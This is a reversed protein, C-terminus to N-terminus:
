GAPTSDIVTGDALVFQKTYIFDETALAPRYTGLTCNLALQEAATKELNNAYGTQVDTNYITIICKRGDKAPRTTLEWALNAIKEKAKFALLTTAVTYTVNFLQQVLDPNQELVGLTLVDGDSPAFFNLFAVDKDEPVISTKAGNNKTFLVTGPAVNEIQKWDGSQVVGLPSAPAYRIKQIGSVVFTAM